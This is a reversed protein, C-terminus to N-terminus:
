PRSHHGPDPSGVSVCSSSRGVVPTNSGYVVGSCSSRRRSSPGFAVAVVFLVAVNMSAASVPRLHDKMEQRLHVHVRISPSRFGRRGTPPARTRAIDCPRVGYALASLWTPTTIVHIRPDHTCNVTNPGPALWALSRASQWRKIPRWRLNAVKNRRIPPGDLRVSARISNDQVCITWSRGPPRELWRAPFSLNM